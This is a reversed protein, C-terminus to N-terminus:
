KVVRGPGLFTILVIKQVDCHELYFIFKIAYNIFELCEKSFDQIIKLYINTINLLKVTCYIYLFM